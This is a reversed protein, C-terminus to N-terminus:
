GQRRSAPGIWFGGAVDIAFHAVMSPYISGTIVVPVALLAGLLAARFVGAPEQYAHVIGFATSGLLLAIFSSGTAYTLATQLFGRFVLEECVGATLAVLVFATREAATVPILHALVSDEATMGVNRTAYMVGVGMFALAFAWLLSHPLALLRLGLLAPDFASARAVFWTITALVWLSVISSAYLAIRSQARLDRSQASQLVLLAPLAVLLLAMWARAPAPLEDSALWAIATGAAVIMVVATARQPRM